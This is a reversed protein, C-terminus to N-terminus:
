NNGNQYTIKRQWDELNDLRRLAGGIKQEAVAQNRLVQQLQLGQDKLDNWASLGVFAIVPLSIRAILKLWSYDALQNVRDNLDSM